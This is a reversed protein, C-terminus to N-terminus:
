GKIAGKVASLMSDAKKMRKKYFSIAEKAENVMEDVGLEKAAAQLKEMKAIFSNYSDAESKIKGALSLIDAEFGMIKGGIKGAEKILDEVANLTIEQKSLEIKEERKNAIEAVKAFIKSKNM